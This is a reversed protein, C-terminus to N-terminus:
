YRTRIITGGGGGGAFNSGGNSPIVTMNSRIIGPNGYDKGPTQGNLLRGSNINAQPYFDLALVAFPLIQNYTIRTLGDISWVTPDVILDQQQQYPDKKPKIPIQMAVGNSDKTNVTFPVLIQSAPSSCQIYTQGVTFPQWGSQTLLDRYTVGPTASSITISGIVLDGNANFTVNPNNLYTSAGFVDFNSVAAASASSVIISYPLSPKVAAQDGTAMMYPQQVFGHYDDVFNHFREGNPPTGRRAQARALYSNAVNNRNM